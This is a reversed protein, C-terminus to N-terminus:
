RRMRRNMSACRSGHETRAEASRWGDVRQTGQELGEIRGLKFSGEAAMGAMQLSDGRWGPSADDREVALREPAAEVMQAVLGGHLHEAGEGALRREDERMLLDGITVLNRRHLGQDPRQAEGTGQEGGVGQM